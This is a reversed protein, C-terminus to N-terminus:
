VLNRHIHIFVDKDPLITFVNLIQDVLKHADASNNGPTRKFFKDLYFPLLYSTNFNVNNIQINELAEKFIVNFLNNNKFCCNVLKSYSNQFTIYEEIFNTKTVIDRPTDNSSCQSDFKIILNQFEQGVYSKFINQLIYLSKQDQSFIDFVQTL